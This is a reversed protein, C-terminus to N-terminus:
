KKAKKKSKKKKKMKKIESMLQKVATTDDKHKKGIKLARKASKKAKRKDGIKTYLAALTYNHSYTNEMKVARKQWAIAKALMQEDNIVEVFTRSISNLEDATIGRMNEVFEVAAKAFGDRNGQSRYYTMKFGAFRGKSDVGYVKSFLKNVATFEQSVDGKQNMIFDLRGNVLKQIRGDIINEGFKKDFLKKNDLMYNFHRSRTSETFDYIFQLNEPTSWDNQTKLYEQVIDRHTNDSALKKAYAYRYLFQPEKVGANYYRDMEGLRFEPNLAKRGVAIFKQENHYGAVKHLIDGEGDLYLLTPYARIKYKKALRVGVGKEMDMKVNIFHTNYFSGVEQNKFVRKDMKKCPGCWTTYADLFIPKKTAQAEQLVADWDKKSFEIGQGYMTASAMVLLALTCLISKSLFLTLNKM